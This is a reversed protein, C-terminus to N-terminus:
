VTRRILEHPWKISTRETVRVTSDDGLYEIEMGGAEGYQIFTHLRGSESVWSVDRLTVRSPFEMAEVRGLWRNAGDDVIWNEGIQM